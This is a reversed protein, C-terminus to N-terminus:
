LDLDFCRRNIDLDLKHEMNLSTDRRSGKMVKKHSKMIMAQTTIMAYCIM